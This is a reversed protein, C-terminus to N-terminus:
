KTRVFEIRRNKERGEDTTNPAIPNEPGFGKATLRNSAIGRAELWRKVAQARAKSIRINRDRGGGDDTYGRVEIEIGPHLTLTELIKELASESAAAIEASWARFKIGELIVLEGIAVPPAVIEKKPPIDDGAFLPNTNRKIEVGDDVGGGDTDIKLPDTKYGFIENSDTLGDGDTDQKLPDTHYTLVEEGDSLGDKDTDVKLPDTNYKYIEDGDSLGDNDSDMKLPDTRFRWVEDGDRILDGDTDPKLPNTRYTKVEEGDTLGDNDTDPNNPDTGLEKEKGNTLGDGDDDDEDNSGFYMTYGFKVTPYSDSGTAVNDTNADLLRYGFDFMLSADKALYAEFGVGFPIYVSVHPEDGPPYPLNDGDKRTYQMGGFGAYLYPSFKSASSLQLWAELSAHWGNLRVYGVPITPPNLSVQQAKLADYGITGGVFFTKSVGYRGLAEFGFGIRRDNLDNLWLNPGLRLGVSLKDEVSQSFILHPFAICVLIALLSSTLKNM